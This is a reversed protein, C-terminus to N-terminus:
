TPPPPVSATGGAVATPTVTAHYEGVVPRGGEGQYVPTGM